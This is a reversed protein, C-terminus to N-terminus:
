LMETVTSLSFGDQCQNVSSTNKLIKWHQWAQHRWLATCLKWNMWRQGQFSSPAHLSTATTTASVLVEPETTLYKRSNWVRYLKLFVTVGVVAMHPEKICLLYVSISIITFPLFLNIFYSAADISTKFTEFCSCLVSYTLHYSISSIKWRTIRQQSYKSKNM